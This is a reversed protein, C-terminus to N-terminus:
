EGCFDLLKHLVVLKSISHQLQRSWVQGGADLYECLPEFHMSMAILLCPHETNNSGKVVERRCEQTIHM